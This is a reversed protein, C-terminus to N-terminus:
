TKCPTKEEPNIRKMEEVLVAAAREYANAVLDAAPKILVHQGGRKRCAVAKKRLDDAETALSNKAWPAASTPELMM